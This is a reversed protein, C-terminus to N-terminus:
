SITAIIGGVISVIILYFGISPLYSYPVNSSNIVYILYLIAAYYVGLTLIGFTMGILAFTRKGTRGGNIGTYVIQILYFIISLILIALSAIVIDPFYKLDLNKSFLSVSHTVGFASFTLNFFSLNFTESVQIISSSSTEKVSFIPFALSIAAFLLGVVSSVIIIINSSKKTSM